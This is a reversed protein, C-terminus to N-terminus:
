ALKRKLSNQLSKWLAGFSHKLQATLEPSLSIPLSVGQYGQIPPRPHDTPLELLAPIGALQGIWYNVQKELVEGKLWQRQWHAFDVYQIPLPPLPSPKNQWFAEYLTSFERILVSLSWGDSIIHHMNVLLVHSDAGLQLLTTRFLPGNELDFPRQADENILKQVEIDIEFQPLNLLSIVSM